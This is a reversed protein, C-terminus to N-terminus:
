SCIETFNCDVYVFYEMWSFAYSFVTQSNAAMKLPSSNFVPGSYIRYEFNIMVRDASPEAGQPALGDAPVTNM